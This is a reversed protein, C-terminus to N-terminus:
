NKKQNRIISLASYESKSDVNFEEITDHRTTDYEGYMYNGIRKRWSLTYMTMAQERFM